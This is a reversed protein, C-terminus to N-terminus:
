PVVEVVGAVGTVGTMETPRAVEGRRGRCNGNEESVGLDGNDWCAKSGRTVETVGRRGMGAGVVVWGDM